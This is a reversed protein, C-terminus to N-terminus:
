PYIIYKDFGPSYIKEGNKDIWVAYVSDNESLLSLGENISMNFLATSFADALASSEALVSVSLFNESPNLTDKDIIHHYSVGNVVYFRQYSGSTVLAKDSVSLYEAYPVDPNGYPSSIGVTFSTGDPKSGVTRVNGGVNIIYGCVGRKELEKAIMEVAYGKAVAGVDLTMEPDTIYVTMNETDLVLDNIDTHRAARLLSEREPIKALSIDSEAAARCEHWLSLVSGMAINVEGRTLNYMQKAYLLMDMIEKDVTLKRHQGDKLANIDSLNVVGEYHNYIDYLRHYKALMGEVLASVESFDSERKEYGIVTTATDFYELHYSTFKKKESTCSSLFAVLASVLLMLSMIRKLM